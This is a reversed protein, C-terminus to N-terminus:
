RNGDFMGPMERHLSSPGPAWAWVPPAGTVRETFRGRVSVPPMDGLESGLIADISFDVTTGGPCPIRHFVIFGSSEDTDTALENPLDLLFIHVSDPQDWAFYNPFRLTDELAIDSLVAKLSWGSPQELNGFWVHLSPAPVEEPEWPGCWVFTEAAAPFEVRSGDERTFVLPGNTHGSPKGAGDDGCGILLLVLALAPTWRSCVLWILDIAGM